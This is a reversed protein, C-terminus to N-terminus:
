PDVTGLEYRHRPLKVNTHPRSSCGLSLHSHLAQRVSLGGSRVCCVSVCLSSLIVTHQCVKFLYQVKLKSWGGSGGNSHKSGRRTHDTGQFSLCILRVNDPEYGRRPDLRELSMQRLKSFVEASSLLSRHQFSVNSYFCRGLQQEYLRVLDEITITCKLLPDNRREKRNREEIKENRAETSGIASSLLVRLQANVSASHHKGSCGRCLTKHGSGTSMKDEPKYKDCGHCQWTKVGAEIKCSSAQQRKRKSGSVKAAKQREKVQKAKCPKCITKRDKPMGGLEVFKDCQFCWWEETKGDAPSLRRQATQYSRAEQHASAMAKAVYADDLPLLALRHFETIDASSWTCCPSNFELCVLRVNAPIYDEDNDYRDPSLQWDSLNRLTLPLFSVACLRQQKSLQATMHQLEYFFESKFTRGVKGKKTPKRRKISSQEMNSLLRTLFSVDTNMYAASSTQGSSEAAGASHKEGEEDSSDDDMGYDATFSQELDAKEDEDDTGCEAFRADDDDDRMM